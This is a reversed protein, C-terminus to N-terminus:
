WGSGWSMSTGSSGFERPPHRSSRRQLLFNPSFALLLQNVFLMRTSKKNNLKRFTHENLRGDEGRFDPILDDLLSVTTFLTFDSGRDSTTEPDDM